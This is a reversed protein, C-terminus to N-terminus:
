SVGFGQRATLNRCLLLWIRLASVAEMGQPLLYTTPTGGKRRYITPTQAAM